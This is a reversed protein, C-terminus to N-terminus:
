EPMRGFRSLALNRISLVADETKATEAKRGKVSVSAKAKQDVENPLDRPTQFGANESAKAKADKGRRKANQRHEKTVRLYFKRMTDTTHGTWQAVVHLAEYQVLDTALSSRLNQFIKPRAVLTEATRPGVGPITQVRKIREDTKGIAELRKVITDLQKNLSDLITLELQGKWLEDPGCEVIPKRFSNIKQRGTHWAKERGDIEIGHNVFCARITNKTKNIRRDLTKPYKVLSRFERHEASPVHVGKLEGMAALRAPTPIM